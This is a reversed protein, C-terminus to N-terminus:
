LERNKVRRSLDRKMEDIRVNIQRYDVFDTLMNNLFLLHSELVQRKAHDETKLIRNALAEKLRDARKRTIEMGNRNILRKQNIDLKHSLENTQYYLLSMKIDFGDRNKNMRVLKKSPIQAFQEKYNMLEKYCDCLSKDNYPNDLYENYYEAFFIADEEDLSLQIPFECVQEEEIVNQAEELVVDSRNLVWEYISDINEKKLLVNQMASFLRPFRSSYHLSYEGYFNNLTSLSVLSSSQFMFTKFTPTNLDNMNELVNLYMELLYAAIEKTGAPGLHANEELFFALPGSMRWPIRDMNFHLCALLSLVEERINSENQLKEM